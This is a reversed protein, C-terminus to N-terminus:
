KLSQITNKKSGTTTAHTTNDTRKLVLWCPRTCNTQTVCVSSPTFWGSVTTEFILYAPLIGILEIERPLLFAYRSPHDNTIPLIESEQLAGWHNACELNM